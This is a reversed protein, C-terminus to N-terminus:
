RPHLQADDGKAAVFRGDIGLPDHTVEHPVAGDDRAVESAGVDDQDVGAAEDVRGLLFRDVRNEARRLELFLAADLGDHRDAAEHLAILLFQLRFHGLDVEEEPEGVQMVEHGLQGLTAQDVIRDGRVRADPLEETVLGM